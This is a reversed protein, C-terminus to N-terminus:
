KFNNSDTSSNKVELYKMLAENKFKIKEFQKNINAADKKQMAAIKKYIGIMKLVEM